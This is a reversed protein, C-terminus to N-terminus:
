ESDEVLEGIILPSLIGAMKIWHGASGAGVHTQPHRFEQRLTSHQAAQQM